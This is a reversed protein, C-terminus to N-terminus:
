TPLSSWRGRGGGGTPLGPALALPLVIGILLPIFRDDGQDAMVGVGNAVIIPTAAGMMALLAVYFVILAFKRKHPRFIFL